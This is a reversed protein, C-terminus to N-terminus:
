AGSLGGATAAFGPAWWNGLGMCPRHAKKGMETQLGQRFPRCPGPPQRVGGGGARLRAMPPIFGLEWCSGTPYRRQWSSIGKSAKGEGGRPRDGSFSVEGSHIQPAAPSSDLNGRAGKAGHGEPQKRAPPVSGLLLFLFFQLQQLFGFVKLQTFAAGRCGFLQAGNLLNWPRSRGLPGVGFWRASPAGLPQGGSPGVPGVATGRAVNTPEAM